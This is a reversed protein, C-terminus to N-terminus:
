VAWRTFYALLCLDELAKISLVSTMQRETKRIPSLSLKGLYTELEALWLVALLLLRLCGLRLALLARLQARLSTALLRCVRLVLLSVLDSM